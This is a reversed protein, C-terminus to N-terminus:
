QGSINYSTFMAHLYKRVDMWCSKIWGTDRIIHRRSMRTPKLEHCLMALYAWESARPEWPFKKVHKSGPTVTIYTVM